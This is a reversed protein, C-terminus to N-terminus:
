SPNENKDQRKLYEKALRTNEEVMTFSKSQRGAFVDEGINDLGIMAQYLATSDTGAFKRLAEVFTSKTTADMLASLASLAGWVREATPELEIYAIVASKLAAIDADSFHTTAVETSWYLDTIQREIEWNKGVGRHKEFIFSMQLLAEDVISADGARLDSILTKVFETM